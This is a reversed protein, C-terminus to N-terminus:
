NILKLKRLIEEAAIVEQSPVMLKIENVIHGKSDGNAEYLNNLLRSGGKPQTRSFIVPHFGELELCSKMYQIETDDLSGYIRAMGQYIEYHYHKNYLFRNNERAGCKGCFAHCCIICVGEAESNEHVSCLVSEEFLAGCDPCFEDTESIDNRCDSCEFTNQETESM